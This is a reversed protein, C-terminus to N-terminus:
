HFHKLSPRTSRGHRGLGPRNQMIGNDDDKKGDTDRPQTLIFGEAERHTENKKKKQPWLWRGAVLPVAALSSRSSLLELLWDRILLM